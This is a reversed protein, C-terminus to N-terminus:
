ELTMPQHPQGPRLRQSLNLAEDQPRSVAISCQLNVQFDIQFLAQLPSIAQSINYFDGSFLLSVHFLYISARCAIMQYLSSRQRFLIFLFHKVCQNVDSLIYFNDFNNKSFQ